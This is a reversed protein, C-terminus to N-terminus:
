NGLLAQVLKPPAENPVPQAHDSTFTHPAFTYHGAALNKNHAHAAIGLYRLMADSKWCGRLQIVNSDVGACLLATAGGPRLSRATLLSADIGTQAELQSSAIGMAPASTPGTKSSPAEPQAHKPSLLPTPPKYRLASTLNSTMESRLSHRQWPLPLLYRQSLLSHFAPPTLTQLRSADDAAVNNAGPIYTATHHYAHLRQHDSQIHCLLAAAGLSSVAGKKVRSVAPTNDSFTEITAHKLCHSHAMVDAQALIDAHELDSNTIRGHPNDTSVFDAQIDAPFPHRWYHGKTGHPSPRLALFDLAFATSSRLLEITKRKRQRPNGRKIHRLETWEQIFRRVLSSCRPQSATTKLLGPMPLSNTNLIQWSEPLDV